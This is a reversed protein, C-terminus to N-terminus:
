LKFKIPCDRIIKSFCVKNGNTMSGDTLDVCKGHDRWSLTTDWISYWWQQNPNNTGCTWIQLKTGDVNKGDTVDLCKNGFIKVPGGASSGSFVWLQSAAGTCTQLTVAAGDTNSQATM